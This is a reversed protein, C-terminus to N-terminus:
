YLFNIIFFNNVIMELESISKMVIKEIIGILM